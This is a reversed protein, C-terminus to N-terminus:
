LHLSSTFFSSFNDDVNNKNIGKQVLVPRIDAKLECIVLIAAIHSDKVCIKGGVFNYSIQCWIQM